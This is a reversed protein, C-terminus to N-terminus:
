CGRVRALDYYGRLKEVQRQVEVMQEMPKLPKVPGAGFSRLQSLPQWAPGAPAAAAVTCRRRRRCCRPTAAAAVPFQQEHLLAKGSLGGAWSRSVPPGPRGPRRRAAATRAAASYGSCCQRAAAHTGGPCRSPGSAFTPFPLAIPWAHRQTSLGLAAASLKLHRISFLVVRRFDQILQQRAAGRGSGGRASAGGHSCGVGACNRLSFRCKFSIRSFFEVPLRPFCNLYLLTM